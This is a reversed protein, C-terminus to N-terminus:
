ESPMSNRQPIPPSRLTRLMQPSRPRFQNPATTPHTALAALVAAPTTDTADAHLGEGDLTWGDSTLTNSIASAFTTPDATM